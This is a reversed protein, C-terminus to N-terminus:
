VFVTQGDGIGSLIASLETVEIALDGRLREEKVEALRLSTKCVVLRHGKEGLAKLLGMAGPVRMAKIFHEHDPPVYDARLMQVSEGAFVVTAAGPAEAAMLLGYHIRAFEGTHIIVTLSDSMVNM